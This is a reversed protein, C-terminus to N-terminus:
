VGAIGRVAAAGAYKSTSPNFMAASLIGTKLLNGFLQGPAAQEGYELQALNQGRNTAANGLFQGMGAGTGYMNQGLGIGTMYKQMLDNLYQQRDQAMINGAGTQINNLAASSGMLGMSSAAELGANKNAELMQRAYPSTEYGGAWKSELEAPNLLANEAENLRGTQEIGQQWYPKGYAETQRFAENIPAKAARYGEQPNLFSNIMDFIAM